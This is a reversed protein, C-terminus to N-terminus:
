HQQLPRLRALPFSSLAPQGFVHHGVHAAFDAFITPEIDSLVFFGAFALNRIQYFIITFAANHSVQNPTLGCKPRECGPKWV